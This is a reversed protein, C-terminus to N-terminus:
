WGGGPTADGKMPAVRKAHDMGDCSVAGSSVGNHDGDQPTMSVAVDFNDPVGDTPFIEDLVEKNGFASGGKAGSKQPNQQPFGSRSPRAM